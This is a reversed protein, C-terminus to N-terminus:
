SCVLVTILWYSTYRCVYIGLAQLERCMYTCVKMKHKKGRTGGRSLKVKSGLVLALERNHLLDPSEVDTVVLPLGESLCDTLKKQLHPSQM